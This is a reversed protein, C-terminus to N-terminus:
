RSLKGPCCQDGGMTPNWYPRNSDRFSLQIERGTDERNVYETGNVSVEVISGGWRTELGIRATDANNGSELYLVTGNQYTRVIAQATLTVQTTHSLSGSAASVTISAPGIPASGSLQFTVSQTM